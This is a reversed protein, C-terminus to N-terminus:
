KAPKGKYKDASPIFKDLAGFTSGDYKTSLALAEVSVADAAKTLEAENNLKLSASKGLKVITVLEPVDSLLKAVAAVKKRSKSARKAMAVAYNKKETAKAVGRLATELEVVIGMLFMMRKRDASANKNSGNSYWVNHRVEGQSWSVLEFASGAPHGGTNVLKEQPVLHCSFCNRALRYLAGEGNPRIMGKEEALKWRAAEEADTETQETKGSFKSHVDVWEKGAGHCSECSIGSVPEAEGDVITSTFHCDLCQSEAKIRRLGMAKAISKAKKRPPMSKFTKFHHTGKWIENEVKHCKVCKAAGVFMAPDTQATAAVSLAIWLSFFAFVIRVLYFSLGLRVASM